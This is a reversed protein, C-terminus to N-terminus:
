LKRASYCPHGFTARRRVAQCLGESYGLLEERNLEFLLADTWCRRREFLHRLFMALKQELSAYSPRGRGRKGHLKMRLHSHAVYTRNKFLEEQAKFKEM